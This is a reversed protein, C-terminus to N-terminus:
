LFVTQRFIFHDWTPREERSRRFYLIRLVNEGILSVPFQYLSVDREKKIVITLSLRETTNSLVQQFSVWDEEQLLM